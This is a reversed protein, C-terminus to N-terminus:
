IRPVDNREYWTDPMVIDDEPIAGKDDSDIIWHQLVHRYKELLLQYDGDGALNEIESPDNKLDYLEEEPRSRVLVEQSRTLKGRRYLEKVLEMEPYLRRYHANESLYSRGPFYNRIYKFRESRVCRIRDVVEDIRDRAAFIYKRSATSSGLFDRGHMHRPVGIGAFALSTPAFDIASILESSVAGAMPDDKRWVILPIRIGGDYLLGKGRLMPRGNDGFFLIITNELIGKKELLSLIIGVKKDLLNISDIYNAWVDRMIPHDPYVKPVSLMEPDVLGPQKRAEMWADGRHPELLNIQAFFPQRATLESMDSGDFPSESHFNFDTKGRIRLNKTIQKINATFYGAERFYESVLKYGQPLTYRDGRHSRHNQADIATQYVGTQFASRSPSCVPATTFAHTYRVGEAALRDLNPTSVDVNGYSGLDPSM